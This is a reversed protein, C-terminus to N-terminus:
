GEVLIGQATLQNCFALVDEQIENKAMDYKRSIKEVIGAITEGTQLYNWIEAGVSNISLPGQYPVGKQNMNLLWYEGAAERLQYGEALRM